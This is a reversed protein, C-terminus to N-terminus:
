FETSYLVRVIFIFFSDIKVTVKKETSKENYYIDIYTSIVPGGNKLGPILIVKDDKIDGHNFFGLWKYNTFTLASAQLKPKIFKRIAKTIIYKKTYLNLLIIVTFMVIILMIVKFM